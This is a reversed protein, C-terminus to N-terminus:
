NMAVLLINRFEPTSGWVKSEDIEHLKMRHGRDDKIYDNNNGDWVYVSINHALSNWLRKAGKYQENDSTISGVKRIIKLYIKKAVGTGELPKILEAWSVQFSNKGPVIDHPTTPFFNKGRTTLQMVVEFKDGSKFGVIFTYGNFWIELNSHELTDFLEYSDVLNKYTKDRLSRVNLEDKLDLEKNHFLPSEQLFERFTQM